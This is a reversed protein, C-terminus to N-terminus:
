LPLLEDDGVGRRLFGIAPRRRGGSESESESESEEEDPSLAAGYLGAGLGPGGPPTRAAGGGPMRGGPGGPGGPMRGGNGGPAPTGRAKGGPALGM